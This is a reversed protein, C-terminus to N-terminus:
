YSGEQVQWCRFGAERWADVVKERDDLVFLVQDLADEISGFHEAVMNIKLEHDPDRNDNPRMLIEDIHDALDNDIMWKITAQRNAENRGTCVLINHTWGLAKIAAVVDQHPKDEPIGKHFEDWQKNQAHVVRHTCDCLTGDLDVIIWNKSM